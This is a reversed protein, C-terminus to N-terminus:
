RLTTILLGRLLCFALAVGIWPVVMIATTRTSSEQVLPNAWRTARRRVSRKRRILVMGVCTIAACIVWPTVRFRWVMTGTGDFYELLAFWVRVPWVLVLALVIWGVGGVLLSLRRERVAKEYGIDILKANLRSGCEPCVGQQVGRLNYGCKPCLVDREALYAALKQERSGDM